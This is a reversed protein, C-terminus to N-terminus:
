LLREGVVRDPRMRITRPTNLRFHPATVARPALPAVLAPRGAMPRVAAPRAMAPRVVTLPARPAAAIRPAAYVSPSLNFTQPQRREPTLKVTRRQRDRVVTLTVEGEEKRNLLRSLDGVDDVKEGEAETIIDGAKLGAKAAPSNEEVSSVLAGNSVGFYDALQKGLSTTSVGIRRGGGFAYVGGPNARQWEEARRRLEDARGRLEDAGRRAAEGQARSEEARRRAEAELPMINQLGEFTRMFSERKGLTVTLEQEAGGRRITLRAGHGPASEGILRNLKRVSTVQEGDFRVIVDKERLGAREAPGDKVVRTVAVGRPEGTLGYGGMNERTVEEVVVGLFNGDDFFAAIAPAAEFPEAPPVAVVAPPAPAAAEQASVVEPAVIILLAVLSLFLKTKM